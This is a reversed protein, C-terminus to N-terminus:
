TGKPPFVTSFKDWRQHCSLPAASSLGPYVGERLLDQRPGAQSVGGVWAGGM